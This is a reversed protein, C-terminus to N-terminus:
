SEIDIKGKRPELIRWGKIGRKHDVAEQEIVIHGESEMVMAHKKADHLRKWKQNPNVPKDDYFLQILETNSLVPVKDNQPNREEGIVIAYPHYWANQLANGNKVQWRGKYYYPDGSRILKDNQDILYGNDNRKVKPITAYIRLGGNRIKAKDWIYALRVWARFKPASTAGYHRLPHLKVMAGNAASMGEPLKITFPLPDDLKTETTPLADVAIIHWERREWSIRYNHVELLAKRLRRIFDQHSNRNGNPYLWTKIDRLTTTLKVTNDQRKGIPYALLANIFIRQSIPAGRGAPQSAGAVAEYLELPLAPVIQTDVIEAFLPLQQLEKSCTPLDGVELADSQKYRTATRLGEPAIATDKRKEPEIKPINDILWEKLIPELPHYFKKSHEKNIIKWLNHIAIVGDELSNIGYQEKITTFGKEDKWGFLVAIAAWSVVMRPKTEESNTIEQDEINAKFLESEVRFYRTIGKNKISDHIQVRIQTPVDIAHQIRCRRIRYWMKAIFSDPEPEKPIEKLLRTSEIHLEANAIALLEFFEDTPLPKVWERLKDATVEPPEGTQGMQGWVEKAAAYLIKNSYTITDQKM